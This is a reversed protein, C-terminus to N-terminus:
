RRETMSRLIRVCEIKGNIKNKFAEKQEGPEMAIYLEKNTRIIDNRRRIERLIVEKSEKEWRKILQYQRSRIKNAAM